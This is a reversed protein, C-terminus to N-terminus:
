GLKAVLRRFTNGVAIPRLGGDKKTLACLTAGYFFEVIETCVKGSLLFNCFDTSCSLLRSGADGTVKSVMDKLHQPRLGDIGAASGSPFSHIGKYVERESVVLVESNAAPPEPFNLPRSPPPHKDRLKELTISNQPAIDDTSSLLRIAGRVDGDAVKAEIRKYLNSNLKFTTNPLPQDIKFNEINKKVIRALSTSSKKPVQLAYYSFCM